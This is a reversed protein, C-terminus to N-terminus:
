GAYAAERLHHTDNLGTLVAGNPHLELVSLSAPELHFHWRAAPSMNLALCLLARISGRHAVLLVTTTNRGSISLENFVAEV